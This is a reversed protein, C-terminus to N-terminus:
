AGEEWEPAYDEAEEAEPEDTDEVAEADDMTEGETLEVDEEVVEAPELAEVWEAKLYGHLGKETEIEAWDGKIQLLTLVTIAKRTKDWTPVVAVKKGTGANASRLNVTTHRQPKKPDRLLARGLQDKWAERFSLYSNQVYGDHKEYLVRSFTEGKELVVVYSGDPISVIRRSKTNANKHLPLYKSNKLFVIALQSGYPENSFSLDSTRVYLHDKSERKLRCYGLGLTQIEVETGYAITEVPEMTAGQSFIDEYVDAGEANVVYGMIKGAVVEPAVVTEEAVAACSLLLCVCLLLASIRVNMM